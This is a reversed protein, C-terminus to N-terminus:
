TLPGGNAITPGTSHTTPGVSVPITRREPSVRMSSSRIDGRGPRTAQDHVALPKLGRAVPERATPSVDTRAGCLTRDSGRVNMPARGRVEHPDPGQSEPGSM